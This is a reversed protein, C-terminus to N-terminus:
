DSAIMNGTLGAKSLALTWVPLAHQLYPQLGESHGKKTSDCFVSVVGLLEGEDTIIPGGSTGREIPKETDVFIVSSYESPLAAKGKIWYGKHSYLNVNIERYLDLSGHFLPVPKVEECFLEYEVGESHFVRPDLSGLVAVDAVPEVALPAVRLENGSSTKVREVFYDGLAMSGDNKLTICHAATIIMEGDVLVGQGHGLEGMITVTANVINEFQKIMGYELQGALCLVRHIIAVSEASM